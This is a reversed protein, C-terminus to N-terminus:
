TQVLASWKSCFQNTCVFKTVSSLFKNGMGVISTIKVLKYQVKMSTYHINELNKEVESFTYSSTSFTTSYIKM